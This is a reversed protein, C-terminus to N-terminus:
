CPTLDHTPHGIDSTDKMYWLPWGYQGSIPEVIFRKGKLKEDDKTELDLNAMDTEPSGTYTRLELLASLKNARLSRM